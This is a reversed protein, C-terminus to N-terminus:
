IGSEEGEKTEVDIYDEQDLSSTAKIDKSGKRKAKNDSKVDFDSGDEFAAIQEANKFDLEINKCLRRLVTKKCMEGFSKTWAKSDAAKSYENRVEEIAKRSMTEYSISEDTYEVVAFAGIIEGDNFPLPKFNIYQHNEIIKEEFLDNERVVKAYINRIPKVSYKRALKVEGKYDTQFKLDHQNKKKNWYAIAYCEGNFFDLGLFGGKIMTRAISTPDVKEIDKVDPLVAMCNQMFRTENFGEPFADIKNNVLGQLKANVSRLHQEAVTIETSM